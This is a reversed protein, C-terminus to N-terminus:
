NGFLSVKSLHWVPLVKKRYNRWFKEKLINLLYGRAGFMRKVFHNRGEITTVNVKTEYVREQMVLQPSSVKEEILPFGKKFNIVIKKKL